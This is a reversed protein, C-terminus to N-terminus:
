VEKYYTYLMIVLLRYPWFMLLLFMRYIAMFAILSVASSLLRMNISSINLIYEQRISIDGGDDKVVVQTIAIQLTIISTLFTITLYYILLASLM